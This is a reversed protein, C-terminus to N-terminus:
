VQLFDLTVSGTRLSLKKLHMPQQIRRTGFGILLYSSVGVLEWFVYMFLFNNALVIGLMSFTFIGLYAYFRSFRKDGLMYENSFLHVLFSILNVVILMIAALNDIGIGVRVGGGGLDFWTFKMQIIQM